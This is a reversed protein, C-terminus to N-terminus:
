RTAGTRLLRKINHEVTSFLCTRIMGDATLRIRSCHGCFPQTIPNIFGVEGPAGDANLVQALRGAADYRYQQQAGGTDVVARTQNGAPDYAFNASTIRNTLTQGQGNTYSLSALGDLPIQPANGTKTVATRNGYRDYGYDQLWDPTYFAGTGGKVKKLRGLKDYEYARNRMQNQNDTISTLQGNKAGNNQWDNTLTYNYKLDLFIASDSVRTVRQATLLGTKADYNYSETVQSGVTLSETQSAANYIPNSPVGSKDYQASQLRNLPDNNYNFINKVGRADM